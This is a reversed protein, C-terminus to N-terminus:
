VLSGIIQMHGWIERKPQWVGISHELKVTGSLVM